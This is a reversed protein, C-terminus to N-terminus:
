VNRPIEFPQNFTGDGDPARLFNDGIFTLTSPFHLSSNYTEVNYFFNNTITKLGEPLYIPKNYYMPVVERLTPTDFPSVSRSEPIPSNIIAFFANGILMLSNPFHISENYAMAHTMVNDGILNIGDPFIMAGTLSSCYQFTNNPINAATGDMRFIIDTIDSMRMYVTGNNLTPFAFTQIVFEVDARMSNILAQDDINLEYEM